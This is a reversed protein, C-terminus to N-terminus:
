RHQARRYNELWEDLPRRPMGHERTTKEYAAYKALEAETPAGNGQNQELPLSLQQLPGGSNSEPISSPKDESTETGQTRPHAQKSSGNGNSSDTTSKSAPSGANPTNTAQPPSGKEIELVTARREKGNWEVSVEDEACAGLFQKGPPANASVVGNVLDTEDKTITLVFHRNSRDEFSVLIRDGIEVVPETSAEDKGLEPDITSEDTEVLRHETYPHRESGTGLPHIKLRGLTAVLDDMCVDPDLAFSSAWCRWFTWGVRELIKQRNWDEFWRDPGHYRDGDLEVALRRDDEGDVVLDIYFGGVTVQPTVRYGLRVLREFVEREFNSECLDALEEADKAPVPMPNFFHNIAQLKLDRPNQLEEPNVSRFLYMRDRARSLAVNFRQEWLLGTQATAKGPSAIMSVFMIDREKGQFTASDGCTIKHNLFASEGVREILRNQILHAQKNGILSVVGITREAYAPDNVLREIEDVIAIAEARNIKRADRQGHPLYVDVLPPDLRESPKPIRVPEIKEPYFRFSFRIIPEVCRFHENLLVREGPFVALALDYLSSEPMLLDAFPQDQLFSHRLQLLKREEIAV